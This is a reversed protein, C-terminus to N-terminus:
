KQTTDTWAQIQFLVMKRLIVSRSPITVMKDFAQAVNVSNSWTTGVNFFDKINDYAQPQAWPDLGPLPGSLYMICVKMSVMNSPLSMIRIEEM